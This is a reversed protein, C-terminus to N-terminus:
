RVLVATLAAALGGLLSVLLMLGLFIWLPRFSQPMPERPFERPQPPQHAAQAETNVPDPTDNM